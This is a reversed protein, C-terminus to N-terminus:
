DIEEPDETESCEFHALGFSKQVKEDDPYMEEGCYICLDM